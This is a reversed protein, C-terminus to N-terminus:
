GCRKSGMRSARITFFTPLSAVFVLQGLGWGARRSPSDPQGALGRERALWAVKKVMWALHIPDHRNRSGGRAM